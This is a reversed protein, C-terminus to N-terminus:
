VFFYVQFLKLFKNCIKKVTNLFNSNIEERGGEGLFFYFDSPSPPEPKNFFMKISGHLCGSEKAHFLVKATQKSKELPQRLCYKIM